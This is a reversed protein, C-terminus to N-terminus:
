AIENNQHQEKIVEKIITKAKQRINIDGSISKTAGSIDNATIDGSTTKVDGNINGSIEVDGSITSVGGSVNNVNINGSTTKVTKCNGNVTIDGAVNNIDGADGEVSINVIPDDSTISCNGIQIKVNRNNYSTSINKRGNWNTQKEGNIVLSDGIKIVMNLVSKITNSIINYTILYICKIFEIM